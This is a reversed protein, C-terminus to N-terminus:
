GQRVQEHSDQVHIGLEQALAFEESDKESPKVGLLMCVTKRTEVYVLQNSSKNIISCATVDFEIVKWSTKVYDIFHSNVNGGVTTPSMRLSLEVDGKLEFVSSMYRVHERTIKKQEELFVVRSLEWSVKQDSSGQLCNTVLLCAFM